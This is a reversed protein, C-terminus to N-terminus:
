GARDEPGQDELLERARGLSEPAVLLRAPAIGAYLGGADDAMVMSVIGADALRGRALEAEHRWRYRAVEVPGGM